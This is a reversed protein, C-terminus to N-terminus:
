ERGRGPAGGTAPAIVLRAWHAKEKPPPRSRSLGSPGSPTSRATMKAGIAAASIWIVILRVRSYEASRPPASILPLIRQRVADVRYTPMDEKVEWRRFTSQDVELISALERQTYRVRAQRLVDLAATPTM